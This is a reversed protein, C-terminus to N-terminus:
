AARADTAAGPPPVAIVLITERWLETLNPDTRLASLERRQPIAHGDEVMSETWGALAEAAMTFVDDITDAASFCGPADPFVIGYASDADKSVLGIYPKVADQRM